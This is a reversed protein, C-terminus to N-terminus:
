EVVETAVFSSVGEIDRIEGRALLQDGVMLECVPPSEIEVVGQVLADGVSQVTSSFRRLVIRANVGIKEASASGTLFSELNM